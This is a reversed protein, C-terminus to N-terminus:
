STTEKVSAALGIVTCLSLSEADTSAGEKCRGIVGPSDVNNRNSSTRDMLVDLVSLSRARSEETREVM